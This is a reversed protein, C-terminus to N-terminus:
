RGEYGGEAQLDREGGRVCVCMRACVGARM